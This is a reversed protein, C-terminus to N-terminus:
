IYNRNVTKWRNRLPMKKEKKRKAHRKKQKNFSSMESLINYCTEM